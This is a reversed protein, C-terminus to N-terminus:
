KLNLLKVFERTLEHFAEAGSAQNDYLSIPKSEAPAEGLKINEPIVTKFFYIKPNEKRLRRMTEEHFSVNKRVRSFLVGLCQVKHELQERLYAIHSRLLKVGISSLFDPQMPVLYYDSAVIANQTATMLNPACDCLVIDYKALHKGTKRAFLRERGPRAALTLDLFTLKLHGPLLDLGEIGAANKVVCDEFATTSDKKRREAELITAMTGHKEDWSVWEKETMLSLTANIQPDFDVVLVKKKYDKALNAALNVTCTTKGVGGKMQVVSIVIGM